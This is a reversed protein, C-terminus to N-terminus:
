KAKILAEIEKTIEPSLPEISSKFRKVLNGNKNVLFKEFNWSIDQDGALYKFAESKLPGSVVTKKTLPFTVGYLSKCFKEVEKEVEPTQGGFDNSPVGLIVLKKDKYKQHLQELQKLQYTFGCQTAINVVLMPRGRYTALDLMEGDIKQVKFDYLSMSYANLSLGLMFLILKKM